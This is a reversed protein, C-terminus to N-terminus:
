TFNVVLLNDLNQTLIEQAVVNLIIVPSIQSIVFKEVPHANKLYGGVAQLFTAAV